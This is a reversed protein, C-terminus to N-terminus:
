EAFQMSYLDADKLEIRLRVPKGALTGLDSGEKWLMAQSLSDGYLEPSDALAFGELPEGAENQVEIRISGAASTSYNLLLKNGTFKIPKTILEGGSLPATVSVFGDIRITQRRIYATRDQLTSETVYISIERPADDIASATEVLGWNQYNDGYFWSDTQRLGPRIFSEPWVRFTRADRSSMFMGDTIATGERPSGSARLKRYEARPLEKAAPTWGRDIYRTPFGLFIHPARYYPIIGNTYLESVRSPTYDLFEPETWTVFDKSTCTRIDRGDKFDRHYECYEGRISDWFALNQSDFAGLTIVPSESILSWHIADSSKLAYLGKGKDSEGYGIAKYKADEAADPNPDKFPTFNHRGLGDWVINNDKSGDFEFLELNPKSWHIGDDSEAYCYVERNPSDYGGDKYIVDVGRYYMRYVDGDKFVTVYNVGSGEWPLDTTLSVEQLTPRHLQQRAEGTLSEILFGDTFLELRSGVDIPEDAFTCPSWHMTVGILLVALPPFLRLVSM